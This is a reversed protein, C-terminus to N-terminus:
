YKEAIATERNYALLEARPQELITAYSIKAPAPTIVDSFGIDVQMAIRANGLKARFTARVGEYDADEAIRATAVSAPDFELGDVDVQTRCVEAIVTRISQLDNSLRGLLDIDRTPRTAPL